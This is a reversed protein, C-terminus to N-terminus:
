KKRENYDELKDSGLSRHYDDILLKLSRSSRFTSIDLTKTCLCCKGDVAHAKEICDLCFTHGCEVLCPYVM